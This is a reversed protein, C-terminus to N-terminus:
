QGRQIEYLGLSRSGLTTKGPETHGVIAITQGPEVRFSVDRLVWDEETPEAVSRYSFWVNRFEIEGRPHDLPITHPDSEAPIPEDLLKFIRESAAIASQRINFEESLD